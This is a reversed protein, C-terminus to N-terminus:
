PHEYRKRILATVEVARAHGTRLLDGCVIPWPAVGLKNQEPLGWFKNLVEIPGEPDNRLHLERFLRRRLPSRQDIRVYFRANVPKVIGVLAGIDGSWVGPQIDVTKWDPSAALDTSDQCVGLLTTVPL